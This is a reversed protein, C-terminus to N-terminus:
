MGGVDLRRSDGWNTGGLLNNLDGTGPNAQNLFENDTATAGPQGSVPQGLLGHQDYTQPVRMM